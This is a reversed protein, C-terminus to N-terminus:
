SKEKKTMPSRVQLFKEQLSAFLLSVNKGKAALELNLANQQSDKAAKVVELSLVIKCSSWDIAALRSEHMKISVEIAGVLL